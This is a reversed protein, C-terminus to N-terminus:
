FSSRDTMVRATLREAQDIDAMEARAEIQEDQNVSEQLRQSYVNKVRDRRQGRHRLYAAILMAILILVLLAM